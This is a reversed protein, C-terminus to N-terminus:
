AGPMFNKKYETTFVMEMNKKGEEKKRNPSSGDDDGDKEDRLGAGTRASCFFFCFSSNNNLWPIIFTNENLHLEACLKWNNKM